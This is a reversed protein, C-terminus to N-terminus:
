HRCDIYSFLLICSFFIAIWKKLYNQGMCSMLRVLAQYPYGNEKVCETAVLHRGTNLAGLAELGELDMRLCQLDLSGLAGLTNQSGLTGPSELSELDVRLCQFDQSGLALGVPAVHCELVLPGVQVCHMVPIVQVGQFALLRSHSEKDTCSCSFRKM